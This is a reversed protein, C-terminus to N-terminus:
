EAVDAADAAEKATWATYAIVRQSEWSIRAALMRQAVSYANSAQHAEKTLTKTAVWGGPRKGYQAEFWEGFKREIKPDRM